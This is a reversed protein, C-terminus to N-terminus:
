KKATKKIQNLLRNELGEVGKLKLRNVDLLIGTNFVDLLTKEPMESIKKKYKNFEETAYEILIKKGREILAREIRNM